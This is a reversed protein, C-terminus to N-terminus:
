SFPLKWLWQLSLRSGLEFSLESYATRQERSRPEGSKKKEPEGNYHTWSDCSQFQFFDTSYITHEWFELCSKRNELLLNCNSSVTKRKCKELIEKWGETTKTAQSRVTTSEFKWYTRGVFRTCASFTALSCRATSLSPAHAFDKPAHVKAPHASVSPCCRGFAPLFFFVRSAPRKKRTGM